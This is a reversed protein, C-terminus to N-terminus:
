KQIEKTIFMEFLLLTFSGPTKRKIQVIIEDKFSPLLASHDITVTWHYESSNTEPTKVLYPVDPGPYHEKLDSLTIESV